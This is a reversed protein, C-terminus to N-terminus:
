GHERKSDVDEIGKLVKHLTKVLDKKYFCAAVVNGFIDEILIDVGQHKKDYDFILVGDADSDMLKIKAM